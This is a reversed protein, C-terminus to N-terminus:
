EEHLVRLCVLKYNCVNKVVIKLRIVKIGFYRLISAEVFILFFSLELIFQCCTM